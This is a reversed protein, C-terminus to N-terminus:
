KGIWRGNWELEDYISGMEADYAVWSARRKMQVIAICIYHYFVTPERKHLKVLEEYAFKSWNTDRAADMLRQSTYRANKSLKSEAIAKLPEIADNVYQTFAFDRLTVLLALEQQWQKRERHIFVWAFRVWPQAEDPKPPSLFAPKHRLKDRLEKTLHADLLNLLTFVFASAERDPKPHQGVFYLAIQQWLASTGRLSGGAVKALKKFSDNAGEYDGALLLSKARYFHAGPYKKSLVLAKAACEKFEKAHYLYSLMLEQKEWDEPNDKALKHFADKAVHFITWAGGVAEVEPFDRLWKYPANDFGSGYIRSCASVAIWGSVPISSPYPNIWKDDKAPLTKLYDRLVFDSQGWDNDPGALPVPGTSLMNGLVNVFALNHPFISLTASLQLLVILVILPVYRRGWGAISGLLVYIFPFIPFLHRVGTQHRNGLTMTTLLFLAPLMLYLGVPSLLKKPQMCSSILLAVLAVLLGLPLKVLLVAPYFWISGARYRRGLIYSACGGSAFSMKGIIAEAALKPLPFLAAMLMPREPMIYQKSAFAGRFGYSSSLVLYVMMFAIVSPLLASKLEKGALKARGLYLIPTLGLFAMATLKSAIAAGLALGALVFAWPEDKKSSASVLVVFLFLWLTIGIDTTALASHATLSPSLSYLALALLGCKEGFFRCAVLYVAFAILTGLIVNIYRSYYPPTAKLIDYPALGLGDPIGLLTQLMPPNQFGGQFEGTQFYLGGSKVHFGEDNTTSYHNALYFSQGFFVLLLICALWLYKYRSGFM